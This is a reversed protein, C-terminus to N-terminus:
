NIYQIYFFIIFLYIFLYIFIPDVNTPPLHYTSPPPHYTTPPLHYTTAYISTLLTSANLTDLLHFIFHKPKCLYVANVMVQSWYLTCAPRFATHYSSSLLIHSLQIHVNHKINRPIKLVMNHLDSWNEHAHLLPSGEQSVPSNPWYINVYVVNM